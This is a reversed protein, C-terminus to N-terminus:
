KGDKIREIIMRYKGAGKFREKYFRPSELVEGHYTKVWTPNPNIAYFKEIIKLKDM